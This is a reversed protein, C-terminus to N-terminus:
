ELELEAYGFGYKGFDNGNYFLLLSDGIRVVQPYSMMENDWGENGLSIGSKDDDRNWTKNDLSHAYGIKYSNIGGRYDEISRYGYWMHYGDNLHMVCPRSICEFESFAPLVNNHFSHWVVGDNSLASKITYVPELKGNELLWQKTSAYYMKFCDETAMVYAGNTLFPDHISKGIVPGESIRKFTIGDDESIALGIFTEYPVSSNRSWGTYYLYIKNEVRIVSTPHVGFEDFSGKEGLSLIPQNHIYLISRPNHKEVEIFSTYSVFQNNLDPTPRCTFYVRLRDDLELITPVQSYAQMWEYRGLPNFILGRKIWKLNIM